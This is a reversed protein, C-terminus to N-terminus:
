ICISKEELPIRLQELIETKYELLEDLYLVGLHALSIEGPKPIAGGGILGTKTISHHPSRFPRQSILDNDLLGSVSYIKTVDIKEDFSLDPLITQFRKAMMTKGSGPTGILLCNHGGAAAIELARKAFFQGKIDSVDEEYKIETKEEKHKEPLIKMKKNLYAIVEELRDVGIIELGSVLTAENCNSKPLIVRKIGQKRAEICIPLVGKIKNINGNLSLEGLFVTSELDCSKIYGISM